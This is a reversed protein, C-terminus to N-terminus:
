QSVSGPGIREFGALADQSAYERTDMWGAFTDAIMLSYSDPAVARALLGGQPLETLLPAVINVYGDVGTQSITFAKVLFLLIGVATFYRVVGAAFAVRRDRRLARLNPNTKLQHRVVAERRADFDIMQQPTM